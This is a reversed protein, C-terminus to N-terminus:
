ITWKVTLCCRVEPWERPYDIRAINGILVALQVAIQPIPEQFSQSLVIRKIELKENPDIASCCFSFCM